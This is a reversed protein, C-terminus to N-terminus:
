QLSVAMINHGDNFLPLATRLILVDVLDALVFATHKDGKIVIEGL